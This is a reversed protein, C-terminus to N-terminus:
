TEKPASRARPAGHPEPPLNMGLNTAFARICTRYKSFGTAELHLQTIVKKLPSPMARHFKFECVVLGDVLVREETCPDLAWARALSGRISRDFTVRIAGEPTSGFLARRLYRVRCVPALDHERLERVFWGHSADAAEGVAVASLAAMTSPVRRKRVCGQRSRKCELFLLDSSGYRRVRYKRNKMKEDRFFVGFSPSDCALSTIAYMGGLAPDSHPDPLLGTHLLGEVERAQEENLLFKTEYAPGLADSEGLGILSPSLSAPDHAMNPATLESASHTTPNGDTSM